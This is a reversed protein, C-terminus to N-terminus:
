FPTIDTVGISAFLNDLNANGTHKPSLNAFDIGHNTKLTIYLVGPVVDMLKPASVSLSTQAYVNFFKGSCLSAIVFFFIFLNKKMLAIEMCYCCISFRRRSVDM